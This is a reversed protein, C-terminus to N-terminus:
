SSTFRALARECENDAYLFNIYASFESPRARQAATDNRGNRDDPSRRRTTCKVERSLNEPIEGARARYFFARACPIRSLRGNSETTRNRSLLLSLKLTKHTSSSSAHIYIHIHIYVAPVQSARLAPRTIAFEAARPPCTEPARRREEGIECRSILLFSGYVYAPTYTYQLNPVPSLLLRQLLRHGGLTM